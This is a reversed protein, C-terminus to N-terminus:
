LTDTNNDLEFCQQCVHDDHCKCTLEPSINYLKEWYETEEKNM